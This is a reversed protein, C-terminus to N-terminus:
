WRFWVLTENVEPYFRLALVSTSFVNDELTLSLTIECGQNVYPILDNGSLRVYQVGQEPFDELNIPYIIWDKGKKRSRSIYKEDLIM